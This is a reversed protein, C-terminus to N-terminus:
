GDLLEMVIYARGDSTHGFDYIRIIGPHDIATTAKAENFFREVLEANGTLEPRLLKVAATRGLLEHRAHYVSGMGGHSLEGTVRYNGLVAGVISTVVRPYRM